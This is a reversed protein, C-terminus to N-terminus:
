SRERKRKPARKRKVKDIADLSEFIRQTKFLGAVEELLNLSAAVQLLRDITGKGQSELRKLSSLSIGSREALEEQTWGAALRAKRLRRGLEGAIWVPNQEKIFIWKQDM